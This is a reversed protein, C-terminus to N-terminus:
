MYPTSKLAGSTVRLLCEVGASSLAFFGEDPKQACTKSGYRVIIKGPAQASRTSNRRCCMFMLLGVLIALGAVVAIVVGAISGANDATSARQAPAPPSVVPSTRNAMVLDPPIASANGDAMVDPDIGVSTNISATATSWDQLLGSLLSATAM